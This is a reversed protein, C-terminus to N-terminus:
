IVAGTLGPPCTTHAAAIAGVTDGYGHRPWVLHRALLVTTTEGSGIPGAIAVIELNVSTM